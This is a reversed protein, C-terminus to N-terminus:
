VWGHLRIGVLDDGDHRSLHVDIREETALMGESVVAPALGLAIRLLGGEEEVVRFM